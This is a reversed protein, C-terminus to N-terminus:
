ISRPPANLAVAPVSTPDYVAGVIEEPKQEVDGLIGLALPVQANVILTPVEQEPLVPVSLMGAAAVPQAQLKWSTM